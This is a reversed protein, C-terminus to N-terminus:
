DFRLVKVQESCCGSRGGESGDVVISVIKDQDFWVKRAFERTPEDDVVKDDDVTSDSMSTGRSVSSRKTKDSRKKQRRLLKMEQWISPKRVSDVLPITAKLDSDQDEQEDRDQLSVRTDVVDIPGIYTMKNLKESGRARLQQQQQEDGDGILSWVKTQGDRATSVCTATDAEVAVSTVGATHGFLTKFHLLRVVSNQQQSHQTMTSVISHTSQHRYLTSSSSLQGVIHPQPRPRRIVKFVDITNDSRSTVIFPDSHEVATVLDDRTRNSRTRTNSLPAIAHHSEFGIREFRGKCSSPLTITFEQLGITWDDPWVPTSYSMTVRFQRDVEDDDQLITSERHLSNVSSRRRKGLTTSSTMRMTSTVDKITLSVPEWSEHSHMAPVVDEVQVTKMQDNTLNDDDNKIRTMKHFRLMIGDSCTVLLPWHFKAMVTPDYRLTMRSLPSITLSCYLETVRSLEHNTSTRNSNITVCFLSWQGTSYFVVLLLEQEDERDFYDLDHTRENTHFRSRKSSTSEDLRMETITIPDNSGTTSHPQKVHQRLMDSSIQGIFRSGQENPTSEHVMVVPVGMSDDQEDVRSRTRSATFFFQQYFQVLTDTTSPRHKTTLSRRRDILPTSPRDQNDLSSTLVEQRPIVPPIQEHEADEDVVRLDHPPKDALVSERVRQGITSSTARGRRWNVSVKYLERWPRHNTTTTLHRTSSSPMAWSHRTLSSRAFTSLYLHKWLQGDLSLRSWSKSVRAVNTLDHVNLYSLCRLLIEEAFSGELSLITRSAPLSAPPGSSSMKLRKHPRTQRAPASDNARSHQTSHSM